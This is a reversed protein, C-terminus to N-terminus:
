GGVAAGGQVGKAQWVANDVEWAGAQKVFSILIDQPYATFNDTTGTAERRQTSISVKATGAANDFQLVKQSVAKATIGYYVRHDTNKAAMQRISDDTAQQFSATMFIKLDLMNQYNAQNSYSGYREAFSAALRMLQDKSLDDPTYTKVNITKTIPASTAVQQQATTTAKSQVTPTVPANFNYFFLFYIILALIILGALIIFIGISKRNM